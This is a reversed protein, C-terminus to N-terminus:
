RYSTVELLVSINMLDGLVFEVTYLSKIRAYGVGQTKRWGHAWKKDVAFTVFIAFSELIRIM